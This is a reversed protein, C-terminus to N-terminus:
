PLDSARWVIFKKGADFVRVDTRQGRQRRANTQGLLDLEVALLALSQSLDDHLERALRMREAEQAHILLGSLKQAAEEALKRETIDLSTGRVLVPQKAANFEVRGISAIWRLQGDTRMVRYEIGYHGDTEVAKALIQRVADRDDPHLKQLYAQFHIREAREFGFLMRWKETAWIENRVLDRIWIGLNAADTALAMRQESERLDRSLQGARQADLTLEYAMASITALAPLSAIFPWQVLHWLVLTTEGTAGLVFFIVGGGIILARRRDGRRWVTLTADVVFILLLLYATQGVLMWHNSVGEAISVTEGLFQIHRLRTIEWYNLNQGLLFNLILSVTRVICISWLLWNRGAKLYLRVFGAISLIVLWGPVHIWRLVLAFAAPTEARMM